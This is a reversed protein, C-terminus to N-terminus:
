ENVHDTLTLLFVSQLKEEILLDHGSVPSVMKGLFKFVGLPSFITNSLSLPFFLYPTQLPLFTLVCFVFVCSFKNYLKKNQYNLYFEKLNGKTKRTETLKDNIQGEMEVDEVGGKGVSVGGGTRQTGRLFHFRSLPSHSLCVKERVNKHLFKLYM